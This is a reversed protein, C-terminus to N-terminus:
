VCRSGIVQPPIILGVFDVTDTKRVSSDNRLVVPQYVFFIEDFIALHELFLGPVEAMLLARLFRFLRACKHSIRHLLEIGTQLLIRLVVTTIGIVALVIRIPIVQRKYVDLHTYSVSM